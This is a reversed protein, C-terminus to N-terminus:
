NTGFLCSAIVELVDWNIGVCADHKSECAELVDWAQEKNLDSRVHQVDEVSWVVAIKKQEALLKVPVSQTDYVSACLHYNFARDIQHLLKLKISRRWKQLANIDSSIKFKVPTPRRQALVNGIRGVFGM